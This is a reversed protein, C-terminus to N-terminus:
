CAANSPDCIRARGSNSVVINRTRGTELAEFSLTGNMPGSYYPSGCATHPFGSAAYTYSPNTGEFSRNTAAANISVMPGPPDSIGFREGVPSCNNNVEVLYWGSTWNADDRPLVSVPRGLRIAESRAQLMSVLFDSSASSLQQNILFSRYSPAVLGALLALIAITVMLEILTFGNARVRGQWPLRLQDLM